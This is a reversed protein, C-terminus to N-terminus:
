GSMTGAVVLGLGLLGCLVRVLHFSLWRDRTRQWTSPMAAADWTEMQKVLPVEIAMTVVLALAFLAFSVLYAYFTFGRGATLVLVPIMAVLATPMLVTMVEAMNPSLRQLVPVFAVPELRALSRTLAAWPGLFMAMVAAALMVSFFELVGLLM